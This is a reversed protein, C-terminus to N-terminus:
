LVIVACNIHTATAPYLVKEHNAEVELYYELDDPISRAPIRVEFVNSSIRNLLATAFEKGGLKRFHIKGSINDEESLVRIRLYLDEGKHLISPNGTVVMRAPGTYKESVATEAPLDENLVSRLYADHGTLNGNKRINHMELNAITGLEGTTSVMRMLIRNMREWRRALEIRKPIAETGALESKKGANSEKKMREVILNLEIQSQTVELVAENFLFTNLWYDFREMNGAGNIQKRFAELEPIFEYRDLRDQIDEPDRNVMLAGPGQIWDSANLPADGKQGERLEVGRGDLETFIRVLVPNSNGFETATWDTYFDEVPLDRATVTQDYRDCEWAAKALASVTPGINRTRWHIGFLGDCGYKWSDLADRRM